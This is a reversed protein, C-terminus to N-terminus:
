RALKNLPAPWAKIMLNEKATLLKIRLPVYIVLGLAIQSVLTLLNESQSLFTFGYVIIFMIGAAVFSRHTAQIFVTNDKVSKQTAEVTFVFNFFSAAVFAYILGM